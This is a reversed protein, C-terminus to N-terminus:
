CNCQKVTTPSIQNTQKIEEERFSEMTKRERAFPERSIRDVRSQVINPSDPKTIYDEAGLEFGKEQDTVDDLGTLFVYPSQRQNGSLKATGDLPMGTLVDFVVWGAIFDSPRGLFLQIFQIQNAFLLRGVIGSTRRAPTANFNMFGVIITTLM